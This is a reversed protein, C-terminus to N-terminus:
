KIVRDARALVNPPITLGIQKAAKLNIVLEFKTPREVPIEGPKNGKLIKDVHTAARRFLEPLSPGYSMLGNAEVHQMHVYIAPLRYKAAAVAIPTRHALILPSSLVIVAMARAKTANQFAADIDAAARIELPEARLGLPRAVTEITKLQSGNVRPDGLAAVQTLRPVVMMLLELQKGSLEALDLFVGTTNGGPRALSKVFGAAVPDTELDIGVVPISKSAERAARVAEPGRALIVNVERQTLQRALDSFLEPRGEAYRHEFAVNRGEIYGLEHLADIFAQWNSAPPPTNAFPSAIALHGVTPIKAQQAKAM